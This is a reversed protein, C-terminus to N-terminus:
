GLITAKLGAGLSLSSESLGTERGFGTFDLALLLDSPLMVDEPHERKSLLFFSDASSESIPRILEAFISIILLWLEDIAPLPFRSSSPLLPPSNTKRRAFDSVNLREKLNMSLYTVACAPWPRFCWWATLASISLSIRLRM